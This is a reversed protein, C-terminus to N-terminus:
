LASSRASSSVGSIWFAETANQLAFLNTRHFTPTFSMLTFDPSRKWRAISAPRYTMSQSIICRLAIIQSIEHSPRSLLSRGTCAPPFRKASACFRVREMSNPKWFPNDIIASVSQGNSQFLKSQFLCICATLRLTSKNVEWDKSFVQELGELTEESSIRNNRSVFAFIDGYYRYVAAKPFAIERFQDALEQILRDGTEIGFMDNIIKFNDLAVLVMEFPQERKELQSIRRFLALRNNLGTLADRYTEPNQLRLYMLLLSLTLGFGSLMYSELLFQLVISITITCFILGLTLLKEREISCRFAFTFYVTLLIYFLASLYLLFHWPGHTYTGTEDFYFYAGTIPNLCMSIVGLIAPISLVLLLPLKKASLSNTLGFVYVVFCPPILYQLSLYVINVLQHLWLPVSSRELLLCSVINLFIDAIALILFWGFFRMQLDDQQFRRFFYLILIGLVIFSAIEFDINYQM